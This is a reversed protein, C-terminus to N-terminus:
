QGGLEQWKTRVIEAYEDSIAAAIIVKRAAEDRLIWPEGQVHATLRKAASGLRRLADPHREPMREGAGRALDEQYLARMREVTAKWAVEREAWLAALAKGVAARDRGGAEVTAVLAETLAIYDGLVAAEDPAVPKPPPGCGPTLGAASLAVLVVLVVSAPVVHKM